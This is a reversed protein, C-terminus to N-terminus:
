ELVIKWAIRNRMYTRVGEKWRLPMKLRRLDAPVPKGISTVGGRHSVLGPGGRIHGLALAVYLSICKGAINCTDRVTLMSTTMYDM